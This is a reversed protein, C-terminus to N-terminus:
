APLRRIHRYVLTVAKTIAIKQTQTTHRWIVGVTAIYKDGLNIAMMQDLAPFWSGYPGLGRVQFPPRFGKPTPGFIQSAEVVKRMLRWHPQPGNDVNATIVVKGHPGGRRADAILYNCQPMGNTALFQRDSIGAASVGLRAAIVRRVSALCVLPLAPPTTTTTSTTTSTTTTSTSTGTTSTTGTPDAHGAEAALAPGGACACVLAVALVATRKRRM